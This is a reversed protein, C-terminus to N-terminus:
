SPQERPARETRLTACICPRGVYATCGLEHADEAKWQALEDQLQQLAKWPGTYAAANIARRIAHELPHDCCECM